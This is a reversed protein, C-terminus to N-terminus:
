YEISYKCENNECKWVLKEYLNKEYYSEVEAGNADLTHEFYNNIQIHYYTISGTNKYLTGINSHHMHHWINNVKIAHGQSVFLDQFPVNEKIKNKPIVYLNNYKLNCIYKKIKIIKIMEGAFSLIIDDMNLKEIPLYGKPTSILTGEAFCIVEGGDSINWLYTNILINHSTAGTGDYQIGSAGLTISSPIIMNNAFNNLISSYASPTIPCGDFMNAMNTVNSINWNLTLPSFSVCQSFMSNMNIVNTTNWDSINANFSLCAYFMNDMRTVNSTNWNLSDPSFNDCNAFTNEMDTVNSTNWNPIYVGSGVSHNPIGNLIGTCASFTSNINTM